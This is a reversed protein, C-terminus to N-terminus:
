LLIHAAGLLMAMHNDHGCAHMVGENQSAFDLGTGEKVPLADIDARLMVTRGPKGTDLTAILGPYDPFTQIEMGMKEFEAVLAKTTEWEKFSLEPHAHFYRRREIIYPEYKQALAKIDM